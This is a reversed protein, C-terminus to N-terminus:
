ELDEKTFKRETSKGKIIWFRSLDIHKVAWTEILLKLEDKAESTVDSCENDYCDDLYEYMREDMGELISEITSKNIADLPSALTCQAEYYVDGVQPLEIYSDLLDSFDKCNFNENDQSYCKELKREM